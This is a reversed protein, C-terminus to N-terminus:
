RRLPVAHLWELTHEDRRGDPRRPRDIRRSPRSSSRRGRVHAAELRLGDAQLDMRRRRVSRPIGGAARVGGRRSVRGRRGQVDRIFGSADHHPEVAGPGRALDVVPRDVRADPGSSEAHAHRQRAM